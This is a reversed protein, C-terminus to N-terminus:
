MKEILLKLKGKTKQYEQEVSNLQNSQFACVFVSKIYFCKSESSLMM